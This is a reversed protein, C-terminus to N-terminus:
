FDNALQIAGSPASGLQVDTAQGLGYSPAYQAGWDWALSIPLARVVSLVTEPPGLAALAAVLAEAEGSTAYAQWDSLWADAAAADGGFYEVLASYAEPPPSALPFFGNGFFARGM